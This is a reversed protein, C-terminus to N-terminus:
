SHVCHLEYKLVVGVTFVIFMRIASRAFVLRLSLASVLTVSGAGLSDVVCVDPSVLKRARVEPVIERVMGVTGVGCYVDYDSGFDDAFM